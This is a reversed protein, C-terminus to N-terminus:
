GGYGGSKPWGFHQLMKEPVPVPATTGLQLDLCIARGDLKSPADRQLVVPTGQFGLLLLFFVDKHKVIGTTLTIIHADWEDRLIWLGNADRWKPIFLASSWSKKVEKREEVSSFSHEIKKHPACASEYERVLLWDTRIPHTYKATLVCGCILPFKDKLIERELRRAVQEDSQQDM